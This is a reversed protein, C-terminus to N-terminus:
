IFRRITMILLTTVLVAACIIIINREEIKVQVPPLVGDKLDQLIGIDM